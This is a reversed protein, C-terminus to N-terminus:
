PCAGWASLLLTLDSAGTSGDGDLDAGPGGWASLLTALDSASVTGDGDLDGTCGCGPGDGFSISLVTEGVAGGAGGVRLLYTEGCTAAFSIRSAFKPICQAANDNCALPKGGCAAYAALVSDVSSFAGCTTVTCTGTRTAVVRLWVDAGVDGSACGPPFPPSSATAGLISTTVTGPEVPLAGDCEDNAPPQVCREAALTVCSADWQVECCEPDVACIEGCCAPDDCGPSKRPSFCSGAGAHCAPGCGEDGCDVRVRYRTSGFTGCALVATGPTPFTGSAVVVRYEGPPVCARASAFDVCFDSGVSVLADAIPGCPAPVLAAFGRFSSGLSLRVGVLGDGDADVLTLKWSDIDRFATPGGAEVAIQGCAWTGCVLTDQVLDPSPTGYCPNNRDQGCSETEQISGAACTPECSGVCYNVALAVCISDWAQSCCTPDLSCVLECCPGDSCAPNSHPQTCSGAAPDGCTGSGTPPCNITALFACTFDWSGTCCFPDISCVLECCDRRDCAPNGHPVVCDGSAAAGCLGVCLQNALEVCEADWGLSCCLPNATCVTTCCAANACGPTPHVLLCDGSGPGCQASAPTPLFVFPLLAALSALLRRM